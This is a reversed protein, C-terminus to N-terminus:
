WEKEHFYVIDLQTEASGHSCQWDGLTVRRQCLWTYMICMWDFTLATVSLWFKFSQGDWDGKKEGAILCFVIFYMCYVCVCVKAPQPTSFNLWAPVFDHQAM